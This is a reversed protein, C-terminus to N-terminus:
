SLPRSPSHMEFYRITKYKEGRLRSASFLILLWIPAEYFYMKENVLLVVVIFFFLVGNLKITRLMLPFIAILVIGGGRTVLNFLTGIDQYHCGGCPDADFGIGIFKNEASATFYSHLGSMRLSLSGDDNGEFFRAHLHALFGSYILYVSAVLLFALISFNDIRDKWRTAVLVSISAVFYISLASNTLLISFLTIPVIYPIKKSNRSAIIFIVLLCAIYNAYTGPEVHLGTFRTVNLYDESFRSASHFLFKHFDFIEKTVLYYLSAQAVIMAVNLILLCSVAKRVEDPWRFSMEYILIAALFNSVILLTFQAPAPRIFVTHFVIIFLVLSIYLTPARMSVKKVLFVPVLLALSVGVAMYKPWMSVSSEFPTFLLFLSIFLAFFAFKSQINKRSSDM